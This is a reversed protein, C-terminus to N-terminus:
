IKKRKFFKGTCMKKKTGIIPEIRQKTHVSFLIFLIFQGSFRSNKHFHPNYPLNPNDKSTVIKQIYVLVCKKRSKALDIFICYSVM